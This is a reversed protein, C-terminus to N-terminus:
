RSKDVFFLFPLFFAFILLFASIVVGRMATRPDGIYLPYWFSTSQQSVSGGKM